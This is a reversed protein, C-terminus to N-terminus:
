PHKAEISSCTAVLQLTTSLRFHREFPHCTQVRCRYLKAQVLVLLALKDRWAPQPAAIEGLANEPNSKM